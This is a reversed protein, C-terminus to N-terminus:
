PYEPAESNDRMWEEAEESWERAEYDDVYAAAEEDADATAQVIRTMAGALGSLARASNPTIPQSRLEEIAEQLAATAARIRPDGPGEKERLYKKRTAIAGLRRWEHSEPDHAFCYGTQNIRPSDCVEGNLKVAPCPRTPVTM